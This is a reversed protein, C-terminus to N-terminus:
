ISNREQIIIKYCGEGCERKVRDTVQKDDACVILSKKDKAVLIPMFPKGFYMNIEDALDYMSKKIEVKETVFTEESTYDLTIFEEEM